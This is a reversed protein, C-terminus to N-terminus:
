AIVGPNGFIHNQPVIIAYSNNRGDDSEDRLEFEVVIYNDNAAVAATADIQTFAATLTPTQTTSGEKLIAELFEDGAAIANPFAQVVTSAATAFRTHGVNAGSYGWVTAEDTLTPSGGGVTTGAASAASQTILALATDETAGNNLKARYCADPNIVVRVFSANNGDSRDGAGAAVQADTSATRTDVALGILNLGSTTTDPVVGQTDGTDADSLVPVGAAIASTDMRYPVMHLGGGGITYAIEM